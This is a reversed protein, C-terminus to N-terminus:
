KRCHTSAWSRGQAAWAKDQSYTNANTVGERSLVSDIALNVSWEPFGAGQAYVGLAFNSAPRFESNITQFNYEGQPGLFNYFAQTNPYPNSVGAAFVQSFSAGNPLMFGTPTGSCSPPNNPWNPNFWPTLDPGSATSAFLANLAGGDCIGPCPVQALAQAITLACQFKGNISIWIGGAAECATPDDIPPATDYGTPDQRSIPNGAAYAYANGSMPDTPAGVYADAEMWSGLYGDYTRVGQFTTFGDTYGDTRPMGLLGGQGVQTVGSKFLQSPSEQNWIVSSPFDTWQTTWGPPDGNQMSCVSSYGPPTYFRNWTWPPDVGNGGAGTANHCALAEGTQDRDWLTLGSFGSDLPTIDGIAGVKIDDVQGSTNTSFLLQDGDWHLTDSSLTGGYKASGVMIPHGNPGWQYSSQGISAWVEGLLHNGADYTATMSGGPVTDGTLRGAADFTFTSGGSSNTIATPVGNRADWTESTGKGVEVMVGNAYYVSPGSGDATGVLRGNQDVEYTSYTTSGLQTFTITGNVSQKEWYQVNDGLLDGQKDYQGYTLQRYGGLKNASAEYGMPMDQVIQAVLGQSYTASSSDIATNLGETCNSACDQLYGGGGSETRGIANGAADETFVITITGVNSDASDQVVLQRLTGDANYGYQYLNSQSWGSSEPAVSVSQRTDDPYYSYSITSASTVGGQTPEQSSTVNGDADYVYNQNGFVSSNITTTRRDPDYSAKLTPTSDSFSAETPDGRQDYDLDVCQNVANCQSTLMGISDAQGDYTMTQKAVGSGGIQYRLQATPRDVPDYSTGRTEQFTTNAMPSPTAGTQSESITTGGSLQPLYEQTEWLNGHVAIVQGDFTDTGDQSLDYAYRTIWPNTYLDDDTGGSPTPSPPPSLTANDRSEIVEVLRDEGDYIDTTTSPATPLSVGNAGSSYGGVYASTATRNEDADYDYTTPTSSAHQQPTESEQLTNDAYYYSYSTNSDPDTSTSLRNLSDYTATTTGVGNSLTVINGFADYTLSEQPVRDNDQSIAAGSVETPLGYDGGGEQSTTYQIEYTYDNPTTVSTLEGYPENADSHSFAYSLIGAGTSPCLSDGSPPSSGWDKGLTNTEVQDCFSTINNYTDYSYLSTPRIQGENTLVSPAGTAILNGSSDYAYDTQYDRADTTATLDDNADWAAYSVLWPSGSDGTYAQLGTPRWLPDVTWMRSHGDSDSVTVVAATYGTAYGSFTETRWATTMTTGVSTTQLQIGTGDSPIFNVIAYDDISTVRRTTAADYSLEVHAGRSGDSQVEVPSYVDTLLYAGSAYGWADTLISATNNGPRSVETLDGTSDYSYTVEQGDPRTISALETPSGSGNIQGFLMKLTQGDSHSVLIETLDEPNSGTPDSVTWSYALTVSNNANRGSISTLRGQLGGPISQSCGSPKAIAAEFHFNSGDKQTWNYGCSGDYTLAAFQGAPPNWGGSGNASYDYRAGDTDYVSIVNYTANYALHADYTNTWGNGFVSPTSGDTGSADHHSQSNYARTFAFSVGRESVAIDNVQVVLNGNGM